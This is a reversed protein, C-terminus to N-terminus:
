PAIRHETPHEGRSMTRTAAEELSVALDVLCRSVALEEGIMPVDPDNPHRRAVGNGTFTGVATMMTATATCHEADEALRLDIVMSRTWRPEVTVRDTMPVITVDTGPYTISEHGDAWCVRYHRGNTTLVEVIEGECTRQGVKRGHVILRDGVEGDM